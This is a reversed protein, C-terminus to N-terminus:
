NRIFHRHDKHRIDRVTVCLPVRPPAKPQRITSWGMEALTRDGKKSNLGKECWVQNEWSRRAGGRSVPQLHEINGGDRGVHRGSIQCVGGDREYINEPTPKPETTPMDRFNAAVIVTPVRVMVKATHLCFDCDRVELSMWDTWKVPNLYLPHDFDWGDALQTYGIDLGLAPPNDRDGGCMAIIAQKVTRHGIPLWSANLALVIPKNLIEQSM